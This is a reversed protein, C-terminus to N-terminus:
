TSGRVEVRIQVTAEVVWTVANRIQAAAVFSGGRAPVQNADVQLEFDLTQGPRLLGSQRGVFRLWPKTVDVAYIFSGTGINHLDYTPSDILFPGGVPGIAFGGRPPQLDLRYVLHPPPTAIRDDDSACGAAVAAALLAFHLRLSRLPVPFLSPM